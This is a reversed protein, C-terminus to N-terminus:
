LVVKGYFLLLDGKFFLVNWFQKQTYRLGFHLQTHKYPYHGVSDSICGYKELRTVFTLIKKQKTNELQVTTIFTFELLLNFVIIVM